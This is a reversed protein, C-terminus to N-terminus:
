CVLLVCKVCVGVQVHLTYLPLGVPIMFVALEVTIGPNKVTIQCKGCYLKDSSHWLTSSM